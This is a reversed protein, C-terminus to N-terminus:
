AGGSCIGQTAIRRGAKLRWLTEIPLCDSPSISVEIRRNSEAGALERLAQERASIHQEIADLTTLQPENYLKIYFPERGRLRIGAGGIEEAGQNDREEPPIALSRHSRVEHLGGLDYAAEEDGDTVAAQIIAYLSRAQAETDYRRSSVRLLSGLVVLLIVGVAYFARVQTHINRM